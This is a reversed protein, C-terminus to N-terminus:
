APICPSTLRSVNRPSRPLPEDKIDTRPMTSTDQAHAAVVQAKGASEGGVCAALPMSAHDDNNVIGFVVVTGQMPVAALFM